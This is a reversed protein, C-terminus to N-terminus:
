LAERMPVTATGELEEGILRNMAYMHFCMWWAHAQKAMDDGIPIFDSVLRNLHDPSRDMIGAFSPFWPVDGEVKWATRSSVASRKTAGTEAALSASSGLGLAATAALWERRNM